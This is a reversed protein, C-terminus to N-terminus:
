EWSTRSGDTTKDGREQFRRLEEQAARLKERFVSILDHNPVGIDLRSVIRQYQNIRWELAEIDPSTDPANEPLSTSKVTRACCRGARLAVHDERRRTFKVHRSGAPARRGHLRSIAEPPSDGSRLPAPM